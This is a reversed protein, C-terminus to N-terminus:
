RSPAGALRGQWSAQFAQWSGAEPFRVEVSWELTSTGDAWMRDACTWDPQPWLPNRLARGNGDHVSPRGLRDSLWAVIEPRFAIAFAMGHRNPRLPSRVIAQEIVAFAPPAPPRPFQRLVLLRFGQEQLTAPQASIETATAHPRAPVIAAM